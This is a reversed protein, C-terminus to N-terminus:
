RFRALGLAITPAIAAMGALLTRRSINDKPQTMLESRNRIETLKLFPESTVIGLIVASFRDGQEGVEHEIHRIAPMDGDTVHRGLGFTM